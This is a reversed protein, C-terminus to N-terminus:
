KWNMKAAIQDYKFAGYSRSDKSHERNDGMCFYEDAGLTISFDKTIGNGYPDDVVTGNVYLVNDKYEITEGPLGVIRKILQLDDVNVTVCDFRNLDYFWHGIIYQNEHYTPEMSIGQVIVPKFITRLVLMCMIVAVVFLVNQIFLIIKGKKTLPQKENIEENEM